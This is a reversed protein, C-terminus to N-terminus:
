AWILSDISCTKPRQLWHKALLFLVIQHVVFQAITVLCSKANTAKTILEMCHAAM